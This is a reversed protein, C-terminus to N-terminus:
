KLAAVITDVNHRVMGVYTGEPTGAKGMADSFLEGGIKVEHDSAACGEVLARINRESVSTEVFVAKIKHDVLYRVLENIERVGAEADTSVGQIPKLELGYARGFYHFADHATVLVRHSEPLEAVRARVYQDLEDLSRLYAEARQRYEAARPPDFRALEDRAHEAALRWLSVDFWVHPDYLGGAVPLLRDAPIGDAVAVVRKSHAMRDFLEALKGELHLGSYFIVDASSLREVDGTSAKYLHPDVGAGMLQDVAVADGGINRVIDAVMGTTCLARIPGAGQYTASESYHSADKACGSLLLGLLLGLLPLARRM